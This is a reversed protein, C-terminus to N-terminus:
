NALYKEAWAQVYKDDREIWTNQQKLREIAQNTSRRIIDLKPGMKEVWNEVEKLSENSNLGESCFEFIDALISASTKYREEFISWNDVMWKWARPRSEKINPNDYTLSILAYMIDQLRILETDMAINLTREILKSEKSAGLSRLAILRQDAIEHNKYINLIEEYFTEAKEGNTNSLAIVYAFRRINPNLIADDGKIFLELRRIIENIVKKDGFFGAVKLVLTRTKSDIYSEEQAYDFGYKDVLPSFIKLVLKSLAELFKPDKEYWISRLGYTNVYIQSLVNYDTEKEFYKLLELANDTRESGNKALAFTDSIIGIRDSVGIVEKSKDELGLKIVEGINQLLNKPYKVRYMGTEGFNLKIFKNTDDPYPITITQEKETLINELSKTPSAHTTIGLPVWWTAYKAEEEPTMDGTSIFRKQSLSLTLENNEQKYDKITVIPYGVDNIWSGMLNEVDIGSSESLAKWLDKTITNSYMHRKLYIRVGDMFKEQGLCACLMRIVSAGKEYSINDFVQDVETAKNIEVQVPHSSRLSDLDLASQLEDVVFSTFIKWKPYLYDTALTGVFTAFGENLWLDNWWGLTVLNGFWQHALEHAVTTCVYEKSAVSSKKEDYLLAVTRFTILGWNEMAGFEFDPIAILDMKPLPYPINFYESFYELVRAAVEAAYNGQSSEGKLTYVRVKIPKADAPATPNSMTEVYDLEGVIYAVLYTSMIPTTDFTVDKYEKGNITVKEEKIIPMNSLTTKDVEARLKIDFTAKLAPEDWCPFSRRAYVSEFQTCAMFKKKGDKDTYESRYFGTMENNLNGTFKISLKAKSGKKIVNTFTLKLTQSDKNIQIDTADQKEMSSVDTITATHVTMDYANTIIETSDNNVNLDIVVEGEFIFKELDPFLFIQYHTPKVNTPLLERKEM